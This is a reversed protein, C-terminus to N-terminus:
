AGGRKSELAKKARDFDASRIAEFREVKMYKCFLAKNAKVEGALKTLEGAQAETILDGAAEGDDDLNADNTAIGTVAEYTAVKLYTMASKIQQIPNKAGSVDPQAKLSVRESHGAVHSLICTVKIEGEQQVEWSADLGHRALEENITTVLNGISTYQSKYQKNEKDRTIIPAAAKFATKAALFAKKAQAAEFENHLRMLREVLEISAGQSIADAMMDMTTRVPAVPHSTDERIRALPKTTKTAPLDHKGAPLIEEM